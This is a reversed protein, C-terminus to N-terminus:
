IKGKRIREALLILNRLDQVGGVKCWNNFFDKNQVIQAIAMLVQLHFNREDKSGALAFVIHVPPIDKDFNIGQRSRVVLIEFQRSGGIIIHPIALGAHIATTSEAERQKLLDYFIHSPMNCKESFSEALIRFLDDVDLARDLDIIKAEKIIQDFRDETIEDREILIDRLEDTLRSSRIEKSTVREAVRILASDRQNRSKSYLFYWFLSVVFFGVTIFLPILGMDVILLLYLVTGVIQLYPYFPAKFTPKYSVIQSERMMIVSINVFAFLLLKMTSAVKVLSELDLLTICAIMFLATILISVVPTKLRISVKAFLSPLLNDKAMALPNRSSALLGANGTTIFALMAAISLTFFGFNGAVKSAGLSIPTLTERFEIKDLLGITVFITLMYIISVIVFSGIMGRPITKVPDKIEEAVSAIKTLGGFSIFIIGTVSFVPLWGQPNFPAYRHIDIREIGTFVYFLLIALLSLVLVIQFTGSEKVSVINLITFLLTCGIAILKATIPSFAGLLPSLFIGIGVLAFASKLALSFWAALGGFTGFLPGLSRHIFFYAGGSKPMATALEIKSLMAPIVLLAAFLYSVLISPGTKSYVVAPLIFLGSSIMAGSSISFIDLM